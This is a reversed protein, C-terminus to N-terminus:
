FLRASWGLGCQADPSRQHSPLLDRGAWTLQSPGAVVQAKSPPQVARNLLLSCLQEGQMAQASHLRDAAAPGRQQSLAWDVGTGTSSSPEQPTAALRVHVGASTSGAKKWIRGLWCHPWQHGGAPRDHLTRRDSPGQYFGFYQGQRYSCCWRCQLGAAAYLEPGRGPASRPSASWAASCPPAREAGAPRWLQPRQPRM